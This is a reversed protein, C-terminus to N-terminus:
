RVNNKRWNEISLLDDITIDSPNAGANNDVNKFAWLHVSVNSCEKIVEEALVRDAKVTANNNVVIRGNTVILGTFDSEVYVNADYALVVGGKVASPIHYNTSGVVVIGHIGESYMVDDVKYPEDSLSEKIAILGESDVINDYVSVSSDLIYEHAVKTDPSSSVDTSVDREIITVMEGNDVRIGSASTTFSGDIGIDYLFQKLVVYRNNLDTCVKVFEDKQGSGVLSAGDGILSGSSVQYLNGSTLVKIGSVDLNSGLIYKELSKTLVKKLTAIDGNTDNVLTGDIKGTLISNVYKVQSETDKFNLYYYRSGSEDIYTFPTTEDLLGYAYFDKLETEDVGGSGATPVPNSTTMYRTPVLYIEQNGKLGVSDATMYGDDSYKVYARGAILLNNVLSADLTSNIGNIVIASSLGAYNNAYSYGYFNKGLTVKSGAGLLNLDDRLYTYSTGASDSYLLNGDAANLANGYVNINNAWLRTDEKVTMHGNVTIDSESIIITKSISNEDITLGAGNHIQLGGNGIENGAYVGGSIVAEMNQAIQIGDMGILSYDLYTTIHNKPQIFDFDVDPYEIVIDVMVTSYYESRSSKYEILVDNFAVSSTDTTVSEIHTVQANEPHKLFSTLYLEWSEYGEATLIGNVNAIYLRRMNSNAASNEVDKYSGDNVDYNVLSTITDIYARELEEYCRVGFGARIEELASEASYFTKKAEYNMTNLKYNTVTSAMVATVLIGVFAIAVLALVM